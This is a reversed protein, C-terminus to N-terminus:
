PHNLHDESAGGLGHHPGYLTGEKDYSLAGATVYVGASEWGPRGNSISKGKKDTNIKGILTIIKRRLRAPPFGEDRLDKKM